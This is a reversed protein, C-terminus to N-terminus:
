RVRGGTGARSRTRKVGRTGGRGRNTMTLQTVTGVSPSINTINTSSLVGNTIHVHHISPPSTKTEINPASPALPLAVSSIENEM